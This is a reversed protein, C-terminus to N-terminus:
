TKVTLICLEINTRNHPSIYECWVSSEEFCGFVADKVKKKNTVLQDATASYFCDGEGRPNFVTNLRLNGFKGQMKYFFLIDRFSNLTSYVIWKRRERLFLQLLFQLLLNHSFHQLMPFDLSFWLPSLIPGCRFGTADSLICCRTLSMTQRSITDRKSSALLFSSFLYYFAM